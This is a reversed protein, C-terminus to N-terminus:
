DPPILNSNGEKTTKESLLSQEYNYSSELLIISSDIWSLPLHSLENSFPAISRVDSESESKSEPEPEPEPESESESEPNFMSNQISKPELESRPDSGVKSEQEQKIKELLKKEKWEKTKKQSNIIRNEINQKM